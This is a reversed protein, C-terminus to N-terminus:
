VAVVLLTADDELRGNSHSFVAQMLATQLDKAGLRRQEAAVRALRGIGFERGQPDRAETLGDTFLVLRDGSQLGVSCQNYRCDPFEGLVPCSHNLEETQGDARILLPPCHGANSYHFERRAPDLVGYFFSIFRGESVNECIIRNLKGCLEAPPLPDATFAKVAAQLNSMLLAAPLGKGIVDAICLGLRNGPFEFLDFYDGGLGHVPEWAAALEVGPLRPLTKPLLGQQIERAARFELEERSPVLSNRRDIQARLAALLRTNDWPKQIFDHAGLRLARVALDVTGWATMVIVPLEHDFARLRALVNLGEQGSTTDATYNLDLLVADYPEAVVRALMEEPSTVVESHYGAGKLLLRLAEAVAAQDEAVLVRPGLLPTTTSQTATM